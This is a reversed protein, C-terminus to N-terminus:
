NEPITIQKRRILELAMGALEAPLYAMMNQSMADSILLKIETETLLGARLMAARHSISLHSKGMAVSSVNGYAVISAALPSDPSPQM